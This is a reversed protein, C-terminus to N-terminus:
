KFVPCYKDSLYKMLENESIFAMGLQSLRNFEIHFVGCDECTYKVWMHTRDYETKYNHTPAITKHCLECNTKYVGENCAPVIHNCEDSMRVIKFNDYGLHGYDAAKFRLYVDDTTFKGFGQRLHKYEGNVYVAMNGSTPDIVYTFNVSDGAKVTALVPNGSNIGSKSRLDYVGDAYGYGNKDTYGKGDEYPHLYAVLVTLDRKTSPEYFFVLWIGEEGSIPINLLKPEFDFSVVYTGKGYNIEDFVDYKADSYISGFDTNNSNQGIKNMTNLEVDKGCTCTFKQVIVGDDVLIAEKKSVDPFHNHPYVIEENEIVVEKNEEVAPNYVRFDSINWSASGGVYLKYTANEGYDLKFSNGGKYDGNVYVYYQRSVPNHEIVFTYEQGKELIANGIPLTNDSSGYFEYRVTDNDVKFLRIYIGHENNIQYKLFTENDKQNSLNNSSVKFSIWVSESNNTKMVTGYFDKGEAVDVAKGSITVTEEAIIGGEGLAISKVVSDCYKCKYDVGDATIEAIIGPRYAFSHESCAAIDIKNNKGDALTAVKIFEFDLEAGGGLLINFKERDAFEINVTGAEFGNIYVVAEDYTPIVNLSILDYDGATITHSVPIDTLDGGITYYGSAIGVLEKGNYSYVTAASGDGYVKASVWYPIRNVNENAAEAIPTAVIVNEMNQIEYGFAEDIGAEVTKGCNCIFKHMLTQNGYELSPIMGLAVSYKATHIHDINEGTVFSFDSITFTGWNGDLFRINKGNAYTADYRTTVYKGNLYIEVTKQSPDVFLAFEYSNGEYLKVIESSSSNANERVSLCGDVYKGTKYDYVGFLRLPSNNNTNFNLLIRGKGGNNDNASVADVNLSEVHLNFKLWYKAGDEGIIEPTSVLDTTNSITLKGNKDFVFKSNLSTDYLNTAFVKHIREGCKNCTYVVQIKEGFVATKKISYEEYVHACPVVTEDEAYAFSIFEGESSPVFSRINYFKINELEAAGFEEYSESTYEYTYKIESVAFTGVYKGDIYVNFYGDDTEFNGDVDAFVYEIAFNSTSRGNLQYGGNLKKGNGLIFNGGQDILVLSRGKNGILNKFGSFSGIDYLGGHLNIDVVMWYGHYSADLAESFDAKNLPLEVNGHADYIPMTAGIYHNYVPREVMTHGCVLCRNKVVFTDLDLYNIEAKSANFTHLQCSFAGIARIGGNGIECLKINTVELSGTSGTGVKISETGDLTQELTGCYKGDLYVHVLATEGKQVSFTINFSGEKKVSGIVTGTADALCLTGDADILVIGKEGLSVVPQRNKNSLNKVKFDASFWYSDTNATYAGIEDIIVSGGVPTGIVAPIAEIEDTETDDYLDNTIGDVAYKDCVTCVYEVNITTKEANFILEATCPDFRHAHSDTVVSYKGDAGLALKVLAMSEFHFQGMEETGVTIDGLAELEGEGLYEGDLYVLYGDSSLVVALGFYEGVTLAAESATGNVYLLGANDVSLVTKAGVSVLEKTGEAPLTKAMVFGVFVAKGEFEPAAVAVFKDTLGYQPAIDDSIVDAIGESAREGCYCDYEYVVTSDEGVVITTAAREEATLWNDSHIHTSNERLISMNSVTAKFANNNDYGFGLKDSALPVPNSSIERVMVLKGDIHISVANQAPDVILSVSVSDGAKMLLFIESKKNIEVLTGLNVVDPLYGGNGDSVPFIRLISNLSGVYQLVNRGNVGNVLANTDLITDLTFEFDIRYPAAETGILASHLNYRGGGMTYKGNTFTIGNGIDSHYNVTPLSYVLEGCSICKYSYFINGNNDKVITELKEDGVTHFCPRLSIDVSDNYQIVGDEDSLEVIKTYNFRVADNELSGLAISNGLTVNEYTAVYSGDVFLQVNAKSSNEIYNVKLAIQYTAPASIVDRDVAIKLDGFVIDADTEKVASLAELTRINYDTLVWFEGKEPINEIVGNGYYVNDAVIVSNSASSTTVVEGCYCEYNYLYEFSKDTIAFDEQVNEAWTDSHIHNDLPLTIVVDSIKYETGFDSHGFRLGQSTEFSFKADYRTMVYKGNIYFDVTDKQPDVWLSIRASEGKKLTIFHPKTSDNGKLEIEDSKIGGNEDTVTYQRVLSNNYDEWYRMVNKNNAKSTNGINVLTITFELQHPYNAVDFNKNEYKSDGTVSFSEEGDYCNEAPMDYVIEGCKDCELVYFLKGSDDTYVSSIFGDPIKHACPKLTTNEVSNYESTGVGEKVVKTYNFRVDTSESSGLIIKDGLVANSYTNVLVGDIWLEATANESDGAYSVKLAVQYTKPATLISRDIAIKVDGFVIDESTTKVTELAQATRINYDTAFWFCGETPIKEITGNGYYVDDCTVISEPMEASFLSKGCSCLYSQAIKQKNVDLKAITKDTFSVKSLDTTSPKIITVDSVSYETSTNHGFRLGVATDFAFNSDYRTMVYKGNVYFDVTDKQPDVWLTFKASEGKKLTVFHPKTSDNGKLEIEDSKVGGNGNSVTYQRILSSNYNEWYRMVNKNNADSVNSINVLTITFELQHPTQAVDFNGPKYQYDGKVTFSDKGSYYDTGSVTYIVEGCDKCRATYVADEAANATCLAAFVTLIVLLILVLKKSNSM